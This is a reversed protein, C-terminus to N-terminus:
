VIKVHLDVKLINTGSKIHVQFYINIQSTEYGQQYVPSLLLTSNSQPYPIFSTFGPDIQFMIFVKNAITIM